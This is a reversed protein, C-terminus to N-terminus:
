ERYGAPTHALVSRVEFMLIEFVTLTFMTKIHVNKFSYETLEFVTLTFM